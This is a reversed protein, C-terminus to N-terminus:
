ATREEPLLWRQLLTFAIVILFYVVGIASAYGVRLLSRSQQVIQLMVVNSTDLPGGQTLTWVQDFVGFALISTSIVVFITTNRLQPLTIRWFQQWPTAGDISAAEYIELPINQLGALFILMQFGAGAWISVLMIAPFATYPNGLWNVEKIAGFTVVSTFSNIIGEPNNFLLGWIVAVVSMSTVVPLFYIARFFNVMPLRMNVLLAMGLALASQLPVVVAVFIFNNLLARQLTTDELMRLYNDFGIFQTPVNPNPILRQNTFSFVIAGIFPIVMFVLLLIVAPASMGWATLNILRRSPKM